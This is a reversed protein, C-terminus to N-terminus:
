RIVAKHKNMEVCEYQAGQYMEGGSSYKGCHEVQVVAQTAFFVVPIRIETLSVISELLKVHVLLPDM